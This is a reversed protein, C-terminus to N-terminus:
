LEINDLPHNLTDNEKKSNVITVTAFAAILAVIAVIMISAAAIFLKKNNSMFVAKEEHDNGDYNFVQNDLNFVVLSNSLDNLNLNISKTKDCAFKCSQISLVSGKNMNQKSDVIIHHADDLLQGNFVCNSVVTNVHNKLGHVYSISSKANSGIEFECHDIEVPSKSELKNLFNSPVNEFNYDIKISSEGANQAFKCRKIIVSQTNM